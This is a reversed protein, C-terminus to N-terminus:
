NLYIYIEIRNTISSVNALIYHKMQFYKRKGKGARCRSAVFRWFVVRCLAIVLFIYKITQFDSLIPFSPLGDVTQYFDCLLHIFNSQAKQSVDFPYKKHVCKGKLFCVM